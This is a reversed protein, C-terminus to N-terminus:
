RNLEIFEVQHLTCSLLYEVCVQNEALQDRHEHRKSRREELGRRLREVRKVWLQYYESKSNAVEFMRSEVRRIHVILNQIRRDSPDPLPSQTQLLKQLLFSRHDSTISKHWDKTDAVNLARVQVSTSDTRLAHGDLPIASKPPVTQSVEMLQDQILQQQQEFCVPIQM